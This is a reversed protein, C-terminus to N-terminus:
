KSDGRISDVLDGLVDIITESVGVTEIILVRNAKIESRIYFIQLQIVVVLIVVCIVTRIAGKTEIKM